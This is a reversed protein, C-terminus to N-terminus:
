VDLTVLYPSHNKAGFWWGNPMARVRVARGMSDSVRMAKPAKGERTVLQVEFADPAVAQYRLDYFLGRYRINQLGFAKGTELLKAPLNPGLEFQLVSPNCSERVGFISRIIHAPLTAGWGYGEAGGTGETVSWMERSVGPWGVEQKPDIRRRDTSRYVRDAIDHLIDALPAYEGALWMSEAYPLVQSPWDLADQQHTAYWLMGPLMAQIQEPTATGCMVPGVQTVVRQGAIAEGSRADVDYFWGDRFLQRTKATYFAELQKWGPVDAQHSFLQAWDALMRAAHAMAAQLEAVRIFDIVEGGTPQKILFRSNADMGTEWSCKATIWGEPGRRNKLTWELYKKLYPYLEAAWGRDATRLFVSEICYFPYCWQLATGCESGDAAVMNMTGDERMCPVNPELADQFQGLLVTKAVDPDAYALAWMDISTEALVNRPAQIQMADWAHKYFGLPRRVMMRLTEFDYVWGNKWHGPFDGELLPARNWFAADEARKSALMSIAQRRSQQSERAVLKQDVGRTLYFSCPASTRAPVKLAVSLGANMPAPFYSTAASGSNLSGRMWQVLTTDDATVTHGSAAQSSKLAFVPGAAFSRLLALDKSKDYSGAIGDRGWWEPPGFQLHECAFLDLAQDEHSSNTVALDCALTDEGIQFFSCAFSLPAITFDLTILNKSHYSSALAVKAEDFDEEEFYTKSEFRVGVRLSARYIYDQRYYFYGGPGAPYHWAFGVPPVSRVVGSQHLAWSHYPNDLYGFPTYSGHPFEGQSSHGESSEGQRTEAAIFSGAAGSWLASSAPSAIAFSALRKSFDRRNM